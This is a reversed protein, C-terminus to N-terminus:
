PDSVERETPLVVVHADCFDVGCPYVLKEGFDVRVVLEDGEPLPLSLNQPPDAASLTCRFISQGSVDLRVTMDGRCGDIPALVARFMRSTGSGEAPLRYHAVTNPKVRISSLFGGSSRRLDVPRPAAPPALPGHTDIRTRTLDALWTMEGHGLILYRVDDWPLSITELVPHELVVHRDELRLEGRLISGDQLAIEDDTGQRRAVDRKPFVYRVLGTRPLPLIGLPCDVAVDNEKIWVLTGPIPRGQTRYLVGPGPGDGADLLAAALDTEPLFDLSALSAVDVVQKDFLGGFVELRNGSFTGIRTRWVEGRVFRVAHPQTESPSRAPMVVFHVSELPVPKGDVQIVGDRLQVDGEMRGTRTQVTGRFGLAVGAGLIGTRIIRSTRPSDTQVIHDVSIHGWPRGELDVVEIQATEGELSSVDLAVPELTMGNRGAVSRVVKGGVLLNVCTRGPYDGGSVLLRIFKREILFDPSRTRGTAGDDGEWSLSTLLMEGEAGIVKVRGHQRRRIPDAFATGEHKWSSRTDDDEEFTAIPVDDAAFAGAACVALLFCWGGVIAKSGFKRM